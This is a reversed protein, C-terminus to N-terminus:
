RLLGRKEAVVQVEEYEFPVRRTRVVPEFYETRVTAEYTEVYPVPKYAVLRTDGKRVMRTLRPNHTQGARAHVEKSVAVRKEEVVFAEDSYGRKKVTVLRYTETLPTVCVDPKPAFSLKPPKFSPKCVTCLSQPIECAEPAPSCVSCGSVPAKAVPPPPPPTECVEVPPPPPPCDDAHLATSVLRTSQTPAPVPSASLLPPNADGALAAGSAIAMLVLVALITKM